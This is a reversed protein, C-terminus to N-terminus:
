RELSVGIANIREASHVCGLVGRNAFPEKVHSKTRFCALVSGLSTRYKVLVTRISESSSSFRRAISGQQAGDGKSQRIRIVPLTAHANIFGVANVNELLGIRTLLRAIVVTLPEILASRTLFM